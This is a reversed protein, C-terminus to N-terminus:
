EDVVGKIEVGSTTLIVAVNERALKLSELLSAMRLHLYDTERQSAQGPVSIHLLYKKGPDFEVLRIKEIIMEDTM